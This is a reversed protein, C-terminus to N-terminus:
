SKKEVKFQRSEEFCKCARKINDIRLNGLGQIVYMDSLMEIESNNM